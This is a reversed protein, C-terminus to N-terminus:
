SQIKEVQGPTFFYAQKQFMKEASQNQEDKASDTNKGKAADVHKWIVIKAVAHEGKKVAFGLQKWAAFTHLEEPEDITVHEGEPTEMEIKKGSTGIIGDKMLQYRTNFIIEENTM